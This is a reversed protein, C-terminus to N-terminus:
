CHELGDCEFDDAVLAEIALFAFLADYPQKCRQPPNPLYMCLGTVLTDVNQKVRGRDVRGREGRAQAIRTVFGPDDTLHGPRTM